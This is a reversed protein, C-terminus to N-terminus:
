SLLRDAMVAQHTWGPIYVLAARNARVAESALWSGYCRLSSKLPMATRFISTTRSANCSSMGYYNTIFNIFDLKKLLFIFLPM